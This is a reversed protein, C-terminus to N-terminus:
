IINVSVYRRMYTFHYNLCFFLMYIIFQILMVCIFSNIMCMYVFQLYSCCTDDICKSIMQLVTDEVTHLLLNIDKSMFAFSKTHLRHWQLLMNKYDSLQIDYLRKNVGIAIIENCQYQYITALKQLINPVCLTCVHKNSFHPSM